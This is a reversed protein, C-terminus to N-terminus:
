KTGKKVTASAGIIYVGVPDTIIIRFTCNQRFRGLTPWRLRRGYQGVTGMSRTGVTYWVNGFDRSVQLTVLPAAATPQPSLNSDTQFGSGMQMHIVLENIFMTMYEANVHATTRTRTLPTDTVVQTAQNYTSYTSYNQSMQYLNGNYDGVIQIGQWQVCCSPLDAGGGISRKHWMDMKVDYAWTAKATPFTIVYFMNDGERYVYAFADNIVSYREMAENIPPTSLVKTGYGELAAVYSKGAIDAALFMVTNGIKCITNVAACGAQILVNPVKQFAYPITGADAQVETIKPGFIYLQLEDSFVGVINDPFTVVTDFAQAGWTTADLVNSQIVTKSNNEAAIVYSDFYTFNTCGGSAPFSGSSGIQAFTNSSITYTYGYQGDSIAIQVTNCTISCIGTSTNLTGLVTTSGNILDSPGGQPTYSLFQNGCIIYLTANIVYLGRIQGTGCSRQWKYGPTPYMIIKEPNKAQAKTSSAIETRMPYLNISDQANANLTKDVYTQGCFNIEVSPM